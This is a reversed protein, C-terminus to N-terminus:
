NAGSYDYGIRKTWQSFRKVQRVVSSDLPKYQLLLGFSFELYGCKLKIKIPVIPGLKCSEVCLDQLEGIRSVDM